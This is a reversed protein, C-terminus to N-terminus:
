VSTAMSSSMVLEFLFSTVGTRSFGQWPGPATSLSVTTITESLLASRGGLSDLCTKTLGHSEVWVVAQTDMDFWYQRWVVLNEILCLQSFEITM